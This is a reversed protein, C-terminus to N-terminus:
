PEPKYLLRVRGTFVLVYAGAEGAQQLTMADATITGAPAEATIAGPSSIGTRDLRVDIANSAVTYGTNTTLLVSGQLLLLGADRDLTGSAATLDARGGDPMDIQISLAVARANVDGNEPRAEVATFVVSSGDATVGSYTPATLRPERIREAVDVEAYPIADEPDIQRAFLFLTSLFALALLPLLIKAWSVMRSHLDRDTTAM